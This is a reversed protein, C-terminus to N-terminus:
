NPHMHILLSAADEM